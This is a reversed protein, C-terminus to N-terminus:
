PAGSDILIAIQKGELNLSITADNKGSLTFVEDAVENQDSDIVHVKKRISTCMKAM